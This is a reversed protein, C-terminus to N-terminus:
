DAGYVWALVLAGDADHTGWITCGGDGGLNVSLGRNTDERYDINKVIAEDDRVEADVALVSGGDISLCGLAKAEAVLEETKAALNAHVMVWQTVGYHLSEDDDDTIQSPRRLVLWPGNRAPIVITPRGPATAELGEIVTAWNFTELNGRELEQLAAKRKTEVVGKPLEPGADRDSSVSEGFVLASGHVCFGVGESWSTLKPPKPPIPVAKRYPAEAAFAPQGRHLMSRVRGLPKKLAKSLPVLLHEEYREIMLKHTDPLPRRERYLLHLHHAQEMVTGKALARTLELYRSGWRRDDPAGSRDSLIKWCAEADSKKM